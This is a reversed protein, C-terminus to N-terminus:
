IGDGAFEFLVDNHKVQQGITAVVSGIKGTRNARITNKMKMAELVCLEQGAKVEDGVKVSLSVIVGPIPAKVHNQRNKGDSGSDTQQVPITAKYNTDVAKSQIEDDPWVEFEEDGIRAIVPRNDLQEIIVQYIQDKIKVNVKM